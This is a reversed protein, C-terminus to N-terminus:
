APASQLMRLWHTKEPLSVLSSSWIPPSPIWPAAAKRAPNTKRRIRRNTKCMDNLLRLSLNSSSGPDALQKQRVLLSSFGRSVEAPLTSFLLCQLLQFAVTRFWSLDTHNQTFSRVSKTINLMNKLLAKLRTPALAGCPDAHCIYLVPINDAFGCDVEHANCWGGKVRSPWQNGIVAFRTKAHQSTPMWCLTSRLVRHPFIYISLYQFYHIM